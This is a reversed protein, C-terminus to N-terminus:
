GKPARNQKSKYSNSKRQQNKMQKPIRVPKDRQHVASQRKKNIHPESNGIQQKNPRRLKNRNNLRSDNKKNDTLKNRNYLRNDNNKSDTLKNRNNLRSDNKKNDTLKNRNNLRSDNNKSDTLKNRNRLKSNKNDLIHQRENKPQLRSPAPGNNHAQPQSGIRHQPKYHWRQAGQSTMIQKRHRYHNSNHHNIVLIHHKNWNFTSFYYNFTIHVASSWYFHGHRRPAYYPHATWYVPPYNYWHWHGYVVIPNYYPVYIIEKQASEIIIQQDVRTVSMYQMEALSGAQDAQQRLSQIGALLGAEDQLFANGLKQTWVLDDSLKNLINPFALLAIVSPDWNKDGAKKIALRADLHRNAAAWRNAQVIELPYTSAILIHTLLSDPYLAIPALMQALEAESYQTAENYGEQAYADTILVAPAAILILTGIFTSILLSHRALTFKNMDGGAKKIVSFTNYIIM